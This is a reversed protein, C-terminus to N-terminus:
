LYFKGWMYHWQRFPEIKAQLTKNYSRGEKHNVIVDNVIYIKHNNNILRLCYDTEDFYFFINEDYYGIDKVAAMNFFIFYGHVIKMRKLEPFTSEIEHEYEKPYNSKNHPPVLIGFDEVKEALEYFKDILNVKFSIDMDMYLCYKTKVNKLGINIGGTQGNNEKSLIVEINKYKKEFYDKTRLQNSNEVIIIRIEQNLDKLINEIEFNSNFAVLIITLDKYNTAM